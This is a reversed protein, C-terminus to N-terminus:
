SPTAECICKKRSKLNNSFKNKKRNIYNFLTPEAKEIATLRFYFKRITQSNVCESGDEKKRNHWARTIEYRAYSFVTGAVLYRTAPLSRTLTLHPVTDVFHLHPTISEKM